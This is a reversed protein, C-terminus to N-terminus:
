EIRRARTVFTRPSVCPFWLSVLLIASNQFFQFAALNEARALAYTSCIVKSSKSCVMRYCPYLIYKSCWLKMRVCKGFIPRGRFLLEIEFICCFFGQIEWNNRAIGHCACLNKLGTMWTQDVCSLIFHLVVAGMPYSPPHSYM